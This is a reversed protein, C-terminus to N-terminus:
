QIFIGNAFFIITYITAQPLFVTRQSQAAKKKGRVVKFDIPIGNM